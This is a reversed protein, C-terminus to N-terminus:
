NVEGSKRLLRASFALAPSGTEGAKSLLRATSHLSPSPPDEGLGVKSLLRSNQEFKLEEGKTVRAVQSLGLLQNVDLEVPKDSMKIERLRGLAKYFGASRLPTGYFESSNQQRRLL